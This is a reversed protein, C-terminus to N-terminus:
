SMSWGPIKEVFMMENHQFQIGFEEALKKSRESLLEVIRGACFQTFEPRNMLAKAEKYIRPVL